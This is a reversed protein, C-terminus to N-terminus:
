QESGCAARFSTRSNNRARRPNRRRLAEVTRRHVERANLSPGHTRTAEEIQAGVRMVPNLSTMPEQFVM